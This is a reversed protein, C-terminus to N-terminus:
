RNFLEQSKLKEPIRLRILDRILEQEYPDFSKNVLGMELAKYPSLNLEMLKIAALLGRLDLSKGSIEGNDNKLKLDAILGSFQGVWEDKLDPYVSKILKLLDSDTLSPVQIILFRSALAENLERTGMYGYNMTAIFRTEDRLNIRSYGPIDIFRRFDLCAHLVAVADNRAMNIEDLIGYGGKEACELIPGKRFEVQGNKFTDSGILSSADTNIHFSLTWSPRKFLYALNEALVNKGTAKPGALLLNQGALIATIAEEWVQKGYYIFAPKTLKAELDPDLPHKSIYDEVLELLKADVGQEKLKNIMIKEKRILKTRFIIYNLFDAQLFCVSKKNGM